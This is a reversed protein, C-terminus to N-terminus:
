RGNGAGGVLSEGLGWQAHIVLRDDRGTIPDCTFAIGSAVAPLLPMVIVAMGPM